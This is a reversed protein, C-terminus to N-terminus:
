GGTDARWKDMQAQNVSLSWKCGVNVVPLLQLNWHNMEDEEHRTEQRRTEEARGLASLSFSFWFFFFIFFFLSSSM